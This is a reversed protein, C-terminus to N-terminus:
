EIIIDKRIKIDQNTTIEITYKGPKVSEFSFEYIIDGPLDTVNDELMLKEGKIMKISTIDDEIAEFDVFLMESEADEFFINSFTYTYNVETLITSKAVPNGTKAFSQFSLVFLFLTISLFRM